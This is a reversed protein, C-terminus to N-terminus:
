IAENIFSFSKCNKTYDNWMTLRDWIFQQGFLDKLFQDDFSLGFESLQLHTIIKDETMWDFQVQAHSFDLMNFVIQTEDNGFVCVGGGCFIFRSYQEDCIKEQSYVEGSAVQCFCKKPHFVLIQQCFQFHSNQYDYNFEQFETNYEQKEKNFSIFYQTNSFM